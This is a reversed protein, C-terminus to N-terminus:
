SRDFRIDLLDKAQPDILEVFHEMNFKPGTAHMKYRTVLTNTANSVRDIYGQADDFERKIMQLMNNVVGARWPVNWFQGHVVKIQQGDETGLIDRGKPWRPHPLLDYQEYLGRMICASTHAKFMTEHLGTWLQQPLTMMFPYAGGEILAMNLLDMDSTIAEGSYFLDVSRKLAAYWRKGIFLPACCLDNMYARETPMLYNGSRPPVQANLDHGYQKHQEHGCGFIYDTQATIDFWPHLEQEIWMDADLICVSDCDGLMDAPAAYRVRMLANAEGKQSIVDSSVKHLHLPFTWEISSWAALVPEPVSAHYVHVPIENALRDLSNLLAAVGPVYRHSVTVIYAHQAM